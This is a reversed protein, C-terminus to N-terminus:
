AQGDGAGEQKMKEELRKRAFELLEEASNGDDPFTAAGILLAGAGLAQKIRNVVAEAGKRDTAPMTLIVEGKAPLTEATDAPRLGTRAAENRVRELEKRYEDKSSFLAPDSVRLVAVSLREQRKKAEAALRNLRGLCHEERGNVPITISFTSGEGERSKFWINGGHAEIIGKSIALGLGSGKQRTPSMSSEVQYFKRFLNSEAEAPIGIGTDTVSLEVFSESAPRASVTVSGGNDTFKIANGVLNILVEEVRSPDAFATPLDGTIEVNLSIAKEDAQSRLTNMVNGVCESIDLDSYHLDMRGAEIRSINLLDNILDSLRNINRRAMSLFRRQQESVEGAKGGAIIDVANKISTLPTRLEHSASSVFESKMDDLRKLEENAKNLTEEAERIDTVDFISVLFAKKGDWKTEAVHMEAVGRRGGNSIFDIETKEDAAIPYGFPMDMFEERERGFLSLAAPNVFQVVGKADVIIIGDPSSDVIIRFSERSHILERELSKRETIDRIIGTAEWRGNVLVASLSLDVPFEEGNKRIASVEHTAGINRGEGTKTFKELGALAAEHYRVPAMLLHVDKGIAEESTYGFMKEAARNWLYITGKDDTCIIADNVNEVGIRFREKSAELIREAEKRRTIDEAIIIYGVIRDGKDRTLSFHIHASFRSGDKRVGDEEFSVSGNKILDGQVEEIRGNWVFDEPFFIEIKEKGVVEEPPYGYIIRAGENVALINGDFDAAILAYGSLREFIAHLFDTEEYLYRIREEVLGSAEQEPKQGNRSM